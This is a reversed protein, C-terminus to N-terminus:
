SYKWCNHTKTEGNKCMLCQMNVYHLEPLGENIARQIDENKQKLKLETRKNINNIIENSEDFVQQFTYYNNNEPPEVQIKCIAPREPRKSKCKLCETKYGFIKFDCKPCMWDSSM